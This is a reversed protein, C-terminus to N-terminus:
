SITPTNIELHYLQAENQIDNLLILLKGTADQGFFDSVRKATKIDPFQFGQEWARYLGESIGLASEIEQYSTGDKRLDIFFNALRRKIGLRKNALDFASPKEKKGDLIKVKVEFM